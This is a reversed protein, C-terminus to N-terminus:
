ASHRLALFEVDNFITRSQKTTTRAEVNESIQLHQDITFFLFAILYLLTLLKKHGENPGILTPFDPNFHMSNTLDSFMRKFCFYTLNEIQLALGKM